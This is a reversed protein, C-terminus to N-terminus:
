GDSSCSRYVQTLCCHACILKRRGPLALLSRVHLFVLVGCQEVVRLSGMRKLFM